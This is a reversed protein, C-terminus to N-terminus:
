LLTCCQKHAVPEDLSSDKKYTPFTQYNAFTLQPSLPANDSPPLQRKPTTPAAQSAFFSSHPYHKASIDTDPLSAVSAPSDSRPNKTQVLTGPLTPLEPLTRRRGATQTMYPSSPQMTVTAPASVYRRTGTNGPSQLLATEINRADYPLAAEITHQGCKTLGYHKFLQIATFYPYHVFQNELCSPNFQHRSHEETFAKAASADAFELRLYAQQHPDLLYHIACISAIKREHLVRAVYKAASEKTTTTKHLEERAQSYLLTM